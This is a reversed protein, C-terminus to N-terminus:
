AARTPLARGAQALDMLFAGPGADPNDWLVLEAGRITTGSWMERLGSAVHEGRYSLVYRIGLVDLSADSDVLAQPTRIWGYFLRDNPWVADTSVAKFSGNVVAVDRYALANLGLGDDVFVREAVAHDVRPSFLLRGPTRMAAVLGDSVPADGTAGRFAAARLGEPEWTRQILPWATAPIVAVQLLVAIAAFPRTGRRSWLRDAVCGALLIACLTLPDRFQYRASIGAAPLWETFLMVAAIVSALVLDTRIAALWVCGALALVSFPAGLLLTRAGEAEGFPRWLDELAARFPLPEPVNSLALNDLFFRREGFLHAATPAAIAAAVILALALAAWQQRIARRYAVLMGLALPAYVAAHGPNTNALTVGTLLGLALGARWSGRSRDELISWTLLLIWPSATWVLYHSPWFDSLLYNQVPAALLYTVICVASVAAALQLRRGILWMGVAGAISHALLLLRVWMVPSLVALLPLLPHFGFHPVFPHPVGLGMRSVWFPYQGDALARVRVWASLVAFRFEEEDRPTGYLFASALLGLAACVILMPWFAALRRGM